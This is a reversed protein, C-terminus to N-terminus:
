YLYLHICMYSFFVLCETYKKLTTLLACHFHNSEWGPASSGTGFRKFVDLVHSVMNRPVGYHNMMSEMAEQCCCFGFEKTNNQNIRGYWNKLWFDKTNNQNIRGYYPKEKSLCYIQNILQCWYSVMYQDTPFRKNPQSAM